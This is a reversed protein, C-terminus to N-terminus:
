EAELPAKLTMGPVVIGNIREMFGADLPRINEVDLWLRYLHRKREEEPWDEIETRSHAIVHNNLFQIDGPRFEQHHTLELGLEECYDLGEQQHDTMPPVEEFRQASMIYTRGGKVSLYGDHFSFVPLKWTRAKGEPVEGRRDFYFDQALAEALEPRRKLMENYITLGSTIRSIGGRMAEHLCFLGVVDCSDSHYGLENSSHYARATNDTFQNFGLDKVHGLIHGNYNQSVARGLHAGLGLFVIAAQRKSYEPVPLGHILAFGLGEVLEERIAAMKPQARGLPFNDRGVAILDEGSKEFASMAAEIDAIEGPEWQYVGAGTRNLDEDYWAAPDVVPQLAIAPQRAVRDLGDM